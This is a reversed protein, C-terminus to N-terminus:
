VMKEFFIFFLFFFFFFFFFLVCRESGFAMSNASERAIETGNEWRVVLLAGGDIAGAPIRFIKSSSQEVVGLWFEEAESQSTLRFHIRIPRPMLGYIGNFVRYYYYQDDLNQTRFSRRAFSVQEAFGKDVYASAMSFENFSSTSILTEENDDGETWRLWARLQDPNAEARFVAFSKFPVAAVSPELFVGTGATSQNTSIGLQVNKYVTGSEDMNWFSDARKKNALNAVLSASSM